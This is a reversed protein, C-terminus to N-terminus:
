LYVKTQNKISEKEYEKITKAILDLIPKLVIKHNEKRKVDNFNLLSLGESYGRVDITENDGQQLHQKFISLAQEFTENIPDFNKETHEIITERTYYSLRDVSYGYPSELKTILIGSILPYNTQVWNIFEVFHLSNMWSLTYNFSLVFNTPLKGILSYYSDINEKSKTFDSNYRLYEFTDEIGDVSFQLGIHCFKESYQKIKETYVTTNTTICLLTKNAYPQEALWDLFEFIAPNLLPEGGLIEFRLSDFETGMVSQLTDKIFKIKDPAQLSIRNFDRKTRGDTDVYDNPLEAAVQTSNSPTCTVCKLNCFNDFSATIVFQNSYSDKEFLTRPSWQGGAQEMDICYSCNYAVDCASLKENYESHTDANIDTRFWCCPKYPAIENSIFLWHKHAKCEKFKTLDM